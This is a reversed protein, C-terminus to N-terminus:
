YFHARETVSEVKLNLYPPFDNATQWCCLFCRSGGQRLHSQNYGFTKPLLGCSWWLAGTAKTHEWPERQSQSGRAWRWYNQFLILRSYWRVVSARHRLFSYLTVAFFLELWIWGSCRLHSLRPHSFWFICCYFHTHSCHILFKVNLSKFSLFFCFTFCIIPHSGLLLSPLASSVCRNVSLRCPPSWPSGWSSVHDPLSCNLSIWM